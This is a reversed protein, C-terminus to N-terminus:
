SNDDRLYDHMKQAYPDTINESVYKGFELTKPFQKLFEWRPEFDITM